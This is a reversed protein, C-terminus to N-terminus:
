IGTLWFTLTCTGSGAGTTLCQFTVGPNYNINTSPPWIFIPSNAPNLSAGSIYDNQSAATSQGFNTTSTTAGTSFGDGTILDVIYKNAGQNLSPFVFMTQAGATALNLTFKSNPNGLSKLIDATTFAM